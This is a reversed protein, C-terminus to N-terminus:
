LTGTVKTADQEVESPRDSPQAASDDIYRLFARTGQETAEMKKLSQKAQSQAKGEETLWPRDSLDGSPMARPVPEPDKVWYNVMEPSQYTPAPPAEPKDYRSPHPGFYNVLRREDAHKPERYCATGALSKYCYVPEHDYVQREYEDVHGCAALGVIIITCFIIKNVPM